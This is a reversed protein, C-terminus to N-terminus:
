RWNGRDPYPNYKQTWTDKKQNLRCRVENINSEERYNISMAQMHTRTSEEIKATDYIQKFTINDGLKSPTEAFKTMMDDKIIEPYGSEELLQKEKTVFEETTM